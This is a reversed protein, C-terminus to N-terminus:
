TDRKVIKFIVSVSVNFHDAVKQYSLGTAKLVLVERQKERSLVSRYPPRIRPGIPWPVHAWSAGSNIQQIRHIPIGLSRAVSTNGEGDWLRQKVEQVEEESFTALPHTEGPKSSMMRRDRSKFNERMKLKAEDTHRYGRSGIGGPAVNLGGTSSNRTDLRGMWHIEADNLPEPSDFYNLVMGRINEAGHKTIWRYLPLKLLEPRSTGRSASLHSKFRRSLGVTTQGVYRIKERVGHCRDCVCYLGYVVNKSNM